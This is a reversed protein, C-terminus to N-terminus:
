RRNAIYFCAVIEFIAVLVVDYIGTRGISRMGVIIVPALALVSSYYYAQHLSLTGIRHRDQFFHRVILSTGYVFFTLLGLASLYFLVFILLIGVPHVSSPSTSQLLASLIVLAGLTVIMLAKVPM